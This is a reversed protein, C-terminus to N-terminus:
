DVAHKKFAIRVLHSWFHSPWPGCVEGPTGIAMLNLGGCEASGCNGLRNQDVAPHQLRIEIVGFVHCYFADTAFGTMLQRARAALTRVNQHRDLFATNFTVARLRFGSQAGRRIADGAVFEMSRGGGLDYRGIRIEIVCDPGSRKAWVPSQRCLLFKEAKVLLSPSARLTRWLALVLPELKSCNFASEGRFV